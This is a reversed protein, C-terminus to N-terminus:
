PGKVVEGGKMVFRVRRLESADRLPDGDVAVLDAFAGAEVTGVREPWGLLEAADRTLARLIELPSLGEDRLVDVLALTADGRTRGEIRFWNDSGAAIKVGLKRARQLRDAAQAAWRGIAKEGEAKEEPTFNFIRNVNETYARHWLDTAVLFIGKEKMARLQADTAEDGHEISDVGAEVGIQIAPETVAHAAVRIKGRHAEDVIARVEEVSLRPPDDSLVVKVLDVGEHLAERVARRADDAGAVVRFEEDVIRGAFTAHNPMAQGGPPALKRGSAQIRPGIVWGENVADRLAVDGNVGSHGVNRVTTIGALLTERANSAGLLARKGPSMGAVTVLLNEWGRLRYSMADLLHAHADILGPLVTRASLDIRIADKPARSAVQEFPGVERIKGDEILIGRAELLVGARVDLLRGARVLTPPAALLPAAAFLVALSLPTYRTM